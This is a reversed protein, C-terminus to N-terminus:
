VNDYRRMLNTIWLSYHFADGEGLGEFNATASLFIQAFGPTSVAIDIGGSLSDSAQQYAGARLARTNQRMQERSQRIQTALYVLSAIVAIVGIARLLEAVAGIADWNM